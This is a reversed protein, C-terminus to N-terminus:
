RLRNEMRLSSLSVRLYNKIDNMEPRCLLITDITDKEPKGTAM